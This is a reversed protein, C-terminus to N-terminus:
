SEIVRSVKQIEAGEQPETLLIDPTFLAGLIIKLFFKVTM